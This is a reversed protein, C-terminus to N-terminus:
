PPHRDHRRWRRDSAVITRGSASEELRALFGGAGRASRLEAVLRNGGPRLLPGVEYVDLPAGPVGPAHAGAGVLKGNLYLVYEEDGAALLRAAAPPEDLDFDRVALFAVPLTAHRNLPTWIWEAAGTPYFLRARAAAAWRVALGAGVTALM